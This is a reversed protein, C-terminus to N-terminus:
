TEADEHDGESDPDLATRLWARAKTWDREVTRSSCDLAEATEEASHVARTLERGMRGGAGMVAIRIDSM